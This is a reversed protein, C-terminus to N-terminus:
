KAGTNSKRFSQFPPTPRKTVEGTLADSLEIGNEKLTAGTARHLDVLAKAYTVYSIIRAQRAAALDRQRLIVNYPTSVGSELRSQEADLVDGAFKLTENAAEVQAQGQTLSVMAQRVELEVQQKLRAM